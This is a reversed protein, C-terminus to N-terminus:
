ISDLFGRAAASALHEHAIRLSGDACADGIREM